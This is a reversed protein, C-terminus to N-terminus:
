DYKKAEKHFWAPAKKRREEVLRDLEEATMDDREDAKPLCYGCLGDKKPSRRQCNTCVPKAKKPPEEVAEVAPVVLGTWGRCYTGMACRGMDLYSGCHPCSSFKPM